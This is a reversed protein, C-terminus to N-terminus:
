TELFLLLLLSFFVTGCGSNVFPFLLLFECRGDTLRHRQLLCQIDDHCEWLMMM